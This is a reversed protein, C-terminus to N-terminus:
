IGVFQYGIRENKSNFSMEHALCNKLAALLNAFQFVDNENRLNLVFSCLHKNGRNTYLNIFSDKPTFVMYDASLLINEKNLEKSFKWLYYDQQVDEIHGGLKHIQSIALCLLKFDNENKVFDIHRFTDKSPSTRFHLHQKDRIFVLASQKRNFLLSDLEQIFTVENESNILGFDNSNAM